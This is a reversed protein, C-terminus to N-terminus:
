IHGSDGLPKRTYLKIHWGCKTSGRVRNRPELFSIIGLIHKSRVEVTATVVGWPGNERM